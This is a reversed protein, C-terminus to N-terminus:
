VATPERFAGVEGAGSSTSRLKLGSTVFRRHYAFMVYKV